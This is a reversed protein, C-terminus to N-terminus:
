LTASPESNRGERCVGRKDGLGAQTGSSSLDKLSEDGTM